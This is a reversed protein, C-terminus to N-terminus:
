LAIELTCMVGQPAFEFRAAGQGGDLAREILQSGFGKREPPKVAPGGSEQWRLRLANKPTQEWGVHVRGTANSLAGYKVANTALEHLAMTLLLAKNADLLVTEVGETAVRDRHRERFPALAHQVIEHVRARNWDQRTLLDHAGGLARLRAFFADREESSASRLTQTALAQVTALTNRVRHKMENVLLENNTEVRRRDSIDRAIKSAGIIKGNDDRVPSVTLSIEVLSGDKRRRITEYHDVREGRRIRALIGPEENIREPPILITVPKGVMEDARYGFLREAGDNWTRIIGNLDKSVIADDSSEVISALQRAALENQKRNSIDVLMNVGGVLNGEADFFPTPYPVFPIRTGDPRESIAEVDRIARRHKLALAM